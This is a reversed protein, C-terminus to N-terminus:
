PAHRITEYNSIARHIQKKTPCVLLSADGNIANLVPSIYIQVIQQGKFVPRAIAMGSPGIKGILGVDFMRGLAYWIYRRGYSSTKSGPCTKEINAEIEEFSAPGKQQLYRTIQVACSETQDRIGRELYRAGGAMLKRTNAELTGDADIGPNIYFIPDESESLGAYSGDRLQRLHNLTSRVGFGSLRSLDSVYLQVFDNLISLLIAVHGPAG